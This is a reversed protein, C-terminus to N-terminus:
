AAGLWVVYPMEGDRRELPLRVFYREYFRQARACGPVVSALLLRQRGKLHDMIAAGSGKEGCILVLEDVPKGYGISRDFAQRVHCERIPVFSSSRPTRVYPLSPNRCSHLSDCVDVENPAECLLAMGHARGDARRVLLITTTFGLLRKLQPRLVVTRHKTNAWTDLREWTTVEDKAKTFGDGGLKYEEVALSMHRGSRRSPAIIAAGDDGTRIGAVKIRVVSTESVAVEEVDEAASAPPVEVASAFHVLASAAVSDPSAAARAALFQERAKRRAEM